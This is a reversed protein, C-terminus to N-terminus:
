ASRRDGARLESPLKVISLGVTSGESLRSSSSRFVLRRVCKTWRRRRWSGTRRAHRGGPPLATEVPGQGHRPREVSPRQWYVARRGSRAAGSDNWRRRTGGHLGLFVVDADGRRPLNSAMQPLAERAMQRLADRSPPATRVVVGSALQHQEADSVPGRAPDVARVDHGCSRLANAVRIGTALSVDRESSTGGMLVIIRLGKARTTTAGPASTM